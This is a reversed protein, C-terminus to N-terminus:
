RWIQILSFYSKFRNNLIPVPPQYNLLRELWNLGTGSRGNNQLIDLLIDSTSKKNLGTLIDVFILGDKLRKDDRNFVQCVRPFISPKRYYTNVSVLLHIFHWFHNIFALWFGNVKVWNLLPKLVTFQCHTFAHNVIWPKAFM